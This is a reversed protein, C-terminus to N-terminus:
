GTTKQGEKVWNWAAIALLLALLATVSLLVIQSPNDGKLEGGLHAIHAMLYLVSLVMNVIRLLRTRHWMILTIYLLPLFHFASRIYLVSDPTRGNADPRRIDIGYFLESVHYDFHLIMCVVLILWLLIIRSQNNM